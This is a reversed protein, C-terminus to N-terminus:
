CGARGHAVDRRTRGGIRCGGRRPPRSTVLRVLGRAILLGEQERVAAGQGDVAKAGYGVLGGPLQLVLQRLLAALPADTVAQQQQLVKRHVGDTAAAVGGVEDGARLPQPLQARGEQADVPTTVDRKVPRALEDGIGDQLQTIREVKTPVDAGELGRDDGSGRAKFDASVEELPQGADPHIPGALQRGNAHADTATHGGVAKGQVHVGVKAPERLHHGTADAVLLHGAQRALEAMRELHLGDLCGQGILERCVEPQARCGAQGSDNPRGAGGLLSPTLSGTMWRELPGATWPGRMSVPVKPGQCVFAYRTQSPRDDSASASSGPMPAAASSTSRTMAFPRRSCRIAFLWPCM